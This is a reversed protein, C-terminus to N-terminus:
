KALATTKERFLDLLYSSTLVEPTIIPERGPVYLVNVPIATRGLEALKEEIEPNPKTKDAKLAVIGREKMLAIVEESYAQSKNVQCTLCWKATFDVYVPRNQELLQEVREPSWTEWELGKKIM